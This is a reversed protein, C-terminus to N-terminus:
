KEQEKLLAIIREPDQAGKYNVSGGMMAYQANFYATNFLGRLWDISGASIERGDTLCEVRRLKNPFFAGTIETLRRILDIDDEAIIGDGVNGDEFTIRYVFM